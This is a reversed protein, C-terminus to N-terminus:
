GLGGLFPRATAGATSAQRACQFCWSGFVYYTPISSCHAPSKFRCQAKTYGGTDADGKDARIAVHKARSVQEVHGAAGAMADARGSDNILAELRRIRRKLDEDIAVSRHAHRGRPLRLRHVPVCPVGASACNTCPNLKDCKVKRERCLECSLQPVAHNPSRREM